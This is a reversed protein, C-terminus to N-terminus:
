KDDEPPDCQSLFDERPVSEWAGCKSCHFLYHGNADDEKLGKYDMIHKCYKCSRWYFFVLFHITILLFAGFLVVAIIGFVGGLITFFTSM